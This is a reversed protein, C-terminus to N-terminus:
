QARVMSHSDGVAGRRGMVQIDSRTGRSLYPPGSVNPQAGLPVPWRHMLAATSGFAGAWWGRTALSLSRRTQVASIGLGNASDGAAASGTRRSAAATRVCHDCDSLFCLDPEVHKSAVALRSKGIQEDNGGGIPLFFGRKRPKIVRHM